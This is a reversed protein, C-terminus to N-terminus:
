TLGSLSGLMPPVCAHLLVGHQVFHEQESGRLLEQFACWRSKVQKRAPNRWVVLRARSSSYIFMVRKGGAPYARGHRGVFM